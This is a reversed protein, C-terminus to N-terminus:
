GGDARACLCVGANSGRVQTLAQLQNNLIRVVKSLPTSADGLTAAAAAPAPPMLPWSPGSWHSSPHATAFAAHGLDLKALWSANGMDPLGCVASVGRLWCGEWGVM